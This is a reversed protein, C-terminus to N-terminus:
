RAPYFSRFSWCGERKLCDKGCPLALRASVDTVRLAVGGLAAALEEATGEFYDSRDANGVPTADENVWVGSYQAPTTTEATNSM